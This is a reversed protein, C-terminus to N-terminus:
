LLVGFGMGYCFLGNMSLEKVPATAQIGMAGPAGHPAGASLRRFNAVTFVSADGGLFVNCVCTLALVLATTASLYQNIAAM